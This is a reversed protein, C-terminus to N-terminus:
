FLQIPNALNKLLAVVSWAATVSSKPNKSDAKATVEVVAKANDNEITIRHTNGMASPNSIVRVAVQSVCGSALGTAVAVNTNKPFGRIAERANGEFVLKCRDIPLDKGKLYPAGNLSKPAKTSEISTVANGMLSITSLIDFGGVAGSTIHVKCGNIDAQQTISTLLENDSLAGVSTIVVDKGAELLPVIMENVANVGAIEVVIEADSTLIENFNAFMKVTKGEIEVTAAEMACDYIGALTYEQALQKIIVSTLIKGLSGYGIVAISKMNEGKNM